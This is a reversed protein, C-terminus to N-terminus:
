LSPYFVVSHDVLEEHEYRFCASFFKGEALWRLFLKDGAWLNLDLLQDSDIWALVGEPSDILDGSFRTATYVFGYWDDESEGLGVFGPFTLLGRLQPEVVDLGTEEKVERIVCAEPTEGPEIKGGPANWKGAHMDNAKKIRHLMLTQPGHEPHDRRIYCLTGLKTTM